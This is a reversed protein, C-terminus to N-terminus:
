RPERYFSIDDIWLDWDGASFGLELADLQAADLKGTPSPAGFGKQQMLAFPVKVFRWEPELLVALGFSDCKQADPVGDATECYPHPAAAAGPTAGSFPDKAAVLMARNSPGAGLRVWLSIGDWGSADYPELARGSDGTSPNFTIAQTAGWGQRGTTPSVCVAVNRGQLRYAYQSETCRPEPLAFAVAQNGTLGTMRGNIESVVGPGLDCSSTPPDVPSLETDYNFYFSCPTTPACEPQLMDTPKGDPPEFDVITQFEWGQALREDATACADVAAATEM